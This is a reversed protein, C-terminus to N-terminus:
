FWGLVGGEFHHAKGGEWAFEGRAIPEDEPGQGTGEGGADDVITAFLAPGGGAPGGRYGM